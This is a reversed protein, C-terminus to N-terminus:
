CSGSFIPLLLQNANTIQPNCPSLFGRVDITVGNVVDKIRLGPLQLTAMAELAYRLPCIWKIWQLTGPVSNLNLLFGGFGLQFLIALGALLTPISLDEFFAALAMFYLTTAFNFVVAILFFQFFIGADSALGVMFYIIVTLITTPVLRLLLLDYLLHSLIWSFASYLGNSRERVVLTRARNLGTMASLSAFALLLLLFFISGVRNQFGAITLNVKFFAAGTILAIVISGLVHAMASSPDRYATQFNRSALCGVQTLLSAVPKRQKYPSILSSRTNAPFESSTQPTREMDQFAASLLHDAPNHNAPISEGRSEFWGVTDQPRGNFLVRGQSMLMIDDFQEFIWSSPQHITMIVTTGTEPGSALGRLAAVVRSANMSDLGSLPEDM